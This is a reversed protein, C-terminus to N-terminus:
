SLGDIMSCVGLSDLSQMSVSEVLSLPFASLGCYTVRECLQLLGLSSSLVPSYFVDWRLLRGINVTMSCAAQWQNSLIGSGIDLVDLVVQRDALNVQWFM